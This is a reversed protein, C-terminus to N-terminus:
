RVHRVFLLWAGDPADGDRASGPHDSGGEGRVKAGLANTHAGDHAPIRRAVVDAPVGAGTLDVCRLELADIGDHM